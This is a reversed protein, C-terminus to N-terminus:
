RYGCKRCRKMPRFVPARISHRFRPFKGRSYKAEANEIDLMLPVDFIINKCYYTGADCRRAIEDDHRPLPHWIQRAPEIGYM